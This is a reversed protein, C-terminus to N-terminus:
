KSMNKSFKSEVFYNRKSNSFFHCPLFHSANVAALPCNEEFSHEFINFILGKCACCRIFTNNVRKM